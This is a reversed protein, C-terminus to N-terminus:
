GQSRRMYGALEFQIQLQLRTHIENGPGSRQRIERGVVQLNNVFLLPPNSELTYVLKQLLETDGTLRVQIAVRSFIDEEIAPLIQTSALSGGNAEIIQKVKQQLETAALTPSSEKLYYADIAGDQRLQQLRAALLERTALMGNLRQLREQLQEINVQYFQYKGILPWALLGFGAFVTSLLLAVAALCHRKGSLHMM